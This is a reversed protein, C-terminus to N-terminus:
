PAILKEWLLHAGFYILATGCVRKIWPQYSLFRVRLTDHGLILAVFSFWASVIVIIWGSIFIKGMIGLSPPLMVSFFNLYFIFAKPNVLGVYLGDKIFSIATPRKHHHSDLKPDRFPSAKRILQVGFFMFYAAGCYQLAILARPFKILLLSLGALNVGIHILDGFTIGLVTL